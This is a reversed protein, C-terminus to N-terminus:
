VYMTKRNAQGTKGGTVDAEALHHQAANPLTLLCWEVSVAESYTTSTILVASRTTSAITVTHKYLHLTCKYPMYVTFM